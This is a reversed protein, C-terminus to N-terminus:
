ESVVVDSFARFLTSADYYLFEDIKARQRLDSSYLTNNSDAYKQVLYTSIARSERLLFGDSDKLLPITHFPTLQVFEPKLQEQKSLDVHITEIPINAIKSVLMVARCPPSEPM